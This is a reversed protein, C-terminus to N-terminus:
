NVTGVQNVARDMTQDYTQIVRQNSEYTRTTTIMRVMEEISNVNSSELFGQELTGTFDAEVSAETTTYLNDGEKRLTQLDEFNVMQFSGRFVENEYISGDSNIRIRNTDVTIPTSEGNLVFLGNSTVLRGQQDMKFSGDRTYKETMTGDDEMLGVKIFGQGQLAVDLREDTQKLSGQSFDTYVQSVKVGLRMDGIHESNPIEPDNIKYTLVESFSEQIMQDKKFGTTDANALNNSIGDMKQQQTYMGTYATYLGRFM